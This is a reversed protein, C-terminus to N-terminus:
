RSTWRDHAESLLPWGRNWAILSASGWGWSARLFSSEGPRCLILGAVLTPPLLPLWQWRSSLYRRQGERSLMGAAPLVVVGWLLGHTWSIWHPDGTRYSEVIDSEIYRLTLYLSLPVIVAKFLSWAKTDAQPTVPEVRPPAKVEGQSAGAVTGEGLEIRLLEKSDRQYWYEAHEGAPVTGLAEFNNSETNPLLTKHVALKRVEGTSMLVWRSSIFGHLTLPEQQITLLIHREGLPTAQIKTRAEAGQPTQLSWTMVEGQKEGIPCRVIQFEEGTHVVVYNRRNVRFSALRRVFSQPLVLPVTWAEPPHKTGDWTWARLQMSKSRWDPDIGSVLQTGTETQIAVAGPDLEVLWQREWKGDRCCFVGFGDSGGFVLRIGWLAGGRLCLPEIRSVKDDDGIRLQPFQGPQLASNLFTLTQNPWPNTSACNIVLFLDQLGVYHYKMRDFDQGAVHYEHRQARTPSLLRVGQGWASQFRYLLYSENGCQVLTPPEVADELV